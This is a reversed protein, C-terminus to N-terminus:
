NNRQTTEDAAPTSCDRPQIASQHASGAAVFAVYYNSLDRMRERERMRM